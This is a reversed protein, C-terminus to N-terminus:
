AAGTAARTLKADIHTGAIAILQDRKDLLAALKDEAFDVPMVSAMARDLRVGAQVSIDPLRDAIRIMEDMRGWCNLAIDCGAVICAEARSAIDGSLANMDLDDSMLLNDFGINGRIVDSIITPSMTAPRDRDYADFVIHGTMGMPANNLSRFPSFDQELEERTASVRPLEHHSDVLARGHGPMHKVVGVVGGAQLGDLIARGLAAVRMPDSGMARDGIAAHTEPVRVDLLPACNVNIGVETLTLALAHANVRAAEIATMASIDYLADFVAGAPFAPWVPPQMRAVRGGEQDILIPIDARGGIDRLSDTLARLQARDIINRKFLIYGAPQCEGFFAREDATLEPGSLGFIVPKM